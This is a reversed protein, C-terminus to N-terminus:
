LLFIFDLRILFVMMGLVNLFIGISFIGGLNFVICFYEGEYIKKVVDFILFGNGNVISM